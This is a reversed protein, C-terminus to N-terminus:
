KSNIYELIDKHGQKHKSVSNIYMKAHAYNNAGLSEFYKFMDINGNHAAILLGDNFNNAGKSVAYKVINKYGKVVANKLLSNYVDIIYDKSGFDSGYYEELQKKDYSSINPDLRDLYNSIIGYYERPSGYFKDSVFDYDEELKGIWYSNQIYFKRWSTNRPRNQIVTDDFRKLSRKEWFIENNCLNNAYKHSVCYSLLTKDDFKDMIELNLDKIGTLSREM